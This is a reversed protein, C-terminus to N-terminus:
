YRYNPSLPGYYEDDEILQPAEDAPIPDALAPDTGYYNLAALIGGKKNGQRLLDILTKRENTASEYDDHGKKQGWAAAAMELPNSAVFIRGVQRGDPLASHMQNAGMAARETSLANREDFVGAEFIDNLDQESIGLRDMLGQM